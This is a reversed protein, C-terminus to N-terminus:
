VEGIRRRLDADEARMEALAAERADSLASEAAALREGLAARQSADSSAPREHLAELADLLEVHADELAALAALATANEGRTTG